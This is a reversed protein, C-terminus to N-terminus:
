KGLTAHVIGMDFRAAQRLWSKRLLTFKESRVEEAPLRKAFQLSVVGNGDTSKAYRFIDYEFFAGSKAWVVFDVMAEKHKKDVLVHAMANSNRERAVQAMAHAVILPNNGAGPMQQFRISILKTWNEVTEPKRVYEVLRDGNPPNATFAKVFTEGDLTISSAQAVGPQVLCLALFLLTGLTRM